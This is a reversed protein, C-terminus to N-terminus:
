RSRDKAAPRVAHLKRELRAVEGRLDSNELEAYMAAADAALRSLM